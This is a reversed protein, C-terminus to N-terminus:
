VMILTPAVQLANNQAVTGTSLVLTAAADKSKQCSYSVAGSVLLELLLLFAIRPNCNKRCMAKNTLDM